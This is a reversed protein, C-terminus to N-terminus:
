AAPETGPNTGIESGARGGRARPPRGVEMGCSQLVPNTRGRHTGKRPRRGRRSVSPNTRRGPGRLKTCPAVPRACSRGSDKFRRGASARTVPHDAGAPGPLARQHVFRRICPVFWHLDLGEPDVKALGCPSDHGHVCRPLTTLQRRACRWSPGLGVHLRVRVPRICERRREPWGFDGRVVPASWVNTRSKRSWVALTDACRIAVV